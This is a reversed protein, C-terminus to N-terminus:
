EERKKKNWKNLDKDVIIDIYKMVADVKEDPIDRYSKRWKNKICKAIHANPNRGKPHRHSPLLKGRLQNAAQQMKAWVMLRNEENMVKVIWRKRVSEAINM